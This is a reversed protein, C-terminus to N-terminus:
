YFLEDAPIVQQIGHTDSVAEDMVSVLRIRSTHLILRLAIARSVKCAVWKGSFDQANDDLWAKRDAQTEFAYVAFARGGMSEYSVNVGLHCYEVFFM